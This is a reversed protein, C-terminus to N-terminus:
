MHFKDPCIFEMPHFVIYTNFNIMNKLMNAPVTTLSLYKINLFLVYAPNHSYNRKNLLM